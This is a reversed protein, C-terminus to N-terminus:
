CRRRVASEPLEPEARRDFTAKVDASTFPQGDHWKVGKRLHFTYVKGDPSMTFREALDPATKTPDDPDHQLLGSFVGAVPGAAGVAAVGCSHRATGSRRLHVLQPHRRIAAEGPRACPPSPSSPPVLPITLFVLVRSFRLM